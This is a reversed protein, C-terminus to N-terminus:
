QIAVIWLRHMALPDGEIKGHSSLNTSYEHVLSVILPRLILKNLIHPSASDTLKDHVSVASAVHNYSTMMLELLWSMTMDKYIM